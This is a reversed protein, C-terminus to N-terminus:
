TRAHSIQRNVRQGPGPQQHQRGPDTGEPIAVSAGRGSTEAGGRQQRQGPAGRQGVPKQGAQLRGVQIGHILSRGPRVGQDHQAASVPCRGEFHVPQIGRLREVASESREGEGPFGADGVDHETAALREALRTLRPVARRQGAPQFWEHGGSGPDARQGQTSRGALFEQVEDFHGAAFVPVPHDAHDCRGGM